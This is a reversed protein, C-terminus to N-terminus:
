RGRGCRAQHQGALRSQPPRRQFRLSQAPLGRALFLESRSLHQSLRHLRHRDDSRPTRRLQRSAGDGAHLAARTTARARFRSGTRSPRRQDISRPLRGLARRLGVDFNDTLRSASSPRPRRTTTPITNADARGPPVLHQRADGAHRRLLFARFRRRLQLRGIRAARAARDPQLTGFSGGEVSGTLQLPGSGPKTIINIVGGIADSGYLGSQPGRLVEVREIDSALVQAFDFSGDPSSPIASM